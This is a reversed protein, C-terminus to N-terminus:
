YIDCNLLKHLATEEENGCECKPDTFINFRKLYAEFEGHGWIYQTIKYNQKFHCNQIRHKITPFFQKTVSAKNTNIWQHEWQEISRQRICRKAYSVPIKEYIARNEDIESAMKALADEREDRWEGSTRKDM